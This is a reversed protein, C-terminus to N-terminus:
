ATLWCCRSSSKRVSGRMGMWLSTSARVTVKQFGSARPDFLIAVEGIGPLRQLVGSFWKRIPTKRGGRYRSCRGPALGM